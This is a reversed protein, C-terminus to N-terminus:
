KGICFSSFIKAFVDERTIAGTLTALATSAAYLDVLIMQEDMAADLSGLATRLYAECASVAARQRENVVTPSGEPAAFRDRVIADLRALLQPIGEGTLASIALADAPPAAVDRKTYVPLANFRAIETRDRDGAGRTADILYLVVDADEAARRAREIGIEEVVGANERLGATDAITVPLGGIEITERVIDRTTGPIPTVIARESGVLRNLLTSKGANPAGLIVLSLGHTTARGRRYTEALTTCADIAESIKARTEDRSIFEYGEDSFDLAAELRSIVDLLSDRISLATRSLTGDLNSLSLKAQLSTRSNILDAISEAQVLDLKGNLVARETFEGPEANRAGLKRAAELVDEVLLPNGHLILEVLDNGTFSHPAVYRIAICEDISNLRTFTAVRPEPVDARSLAALISASEPGDIRVIALASRGVPTAPAVITDLAAGSSM